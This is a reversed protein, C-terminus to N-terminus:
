LSTTCNSSSALNLSGSDSAGLGFISLAKNVSKSHCEPCEIEKARSASLILKEFKHGCEACAYEFIPM